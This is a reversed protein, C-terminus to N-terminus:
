IGGILAGNMNLTPQEEIRRILSAASDPADDHEANETYETIQELYKKDTDALWFINNWNKKLYTAIKLFKNMKEAYGVALFGEKNLEKILYGKDGNTEATITGARYYEHLAKITPLVDDVHKRWMKGFAIYTGDLRKKMVTYATYDEGDYAADIHGLGDFIQKRNEETDELIHPEEFIREEDSIARLEYNAAFLAPTMKRKREKIEKESLIGTEYVTFIKKNPMLESIADESHWITGTNIFRGDPSKINELEQYARKTKEREARSTRDERNVIDDTVIIPSHKGTISTGIGLGLVQPSGNISTKLDTMISNTSKTTLHYNRGYIVNGIKHFAGTELIKQTTRIVEMTDTDTKRFFLIDENPKIITHIALFLAITTTKYSNRHALLTQDKDNYLFSRLWGNHLDTVMEKYGVWGATEIPREWLLDLIENKTM